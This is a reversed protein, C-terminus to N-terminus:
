SGAPRLDCVQISTIVSGADGLLAPFLLPFPTNGSIMLYHLPALAQLTNSSNIASSSVTFIGYDDQRGCLTSSGRLVAQPLPNPLTAFAFLMEFYSSAAIPQALELVRWDGGGADCSSPTETPVFCTFWAPPLSDDPCTQTGLANLALSAPPNQGHSSDVVSVSHAFASSTCLKATDGTQGDDWRVTFPPVGGEVQVRVDVCEAGCSAILNVVDRRGLVEFSLSLPTAPTSLSADMAHGADAGADGLLAADAPPLAGLLVHEQSCALLLV